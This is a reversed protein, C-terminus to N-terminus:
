AVTYMIIYVYVYIVFLFLEDAMKSCAKYFVLPTFSKMLVSFIDSPDRIYSRILKVLPMNELLVSTDIYYTSNCYGM